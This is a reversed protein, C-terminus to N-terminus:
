AHLEFMFLYYVPYIIFSSTYICTGYNYISPRGPKYVWLATDELMTSKGWTNFTIHGGFTSLHVELPIIALQLHSM